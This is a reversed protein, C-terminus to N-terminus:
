SGVLTSARPMFTALNWESACGLAARGKTEGCQKGKEARKGHKGGKRHLASPTRQALPFRRQIDQALVNARIAPDATPQREFAFCALDKANAADFRRRCVEAADTGLA